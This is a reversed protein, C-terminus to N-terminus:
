PMVPQITKIAYISDVFSRERGLQLPKLPTVSVGSLTGRYLEDGRTFYSLGTVDHIVYPEGGAHGIYMMVHGPIYILDGVTLNDLAQLRKRDDGPEFFQTPAFAGKGQQGSNRPMLIGFSKYVEGVFGTCDRGNYDHGWGYREGLFKFAQELVLSPRYELHGVNVDRSRAVLTPEFELRGDEGRVPLSVIHSAVPNQGNVNHGVEAASLLPLSVGMDLAKESTRTDVPNFNTSVQAGTVVLRPAMGLWQEVQGRKGVAVASKPLWAAYHYNVAFWWEGDASEHLLVVQQGPFVGTEQLRDLDQDDPAKFIRDGTPFSRMSAREVVVGWQLEVVDPVQERQVAAQMRGYDAESVQRGDRYYRPSSAPRSIGDLLDRVQEGPMTEGLAQLDHLYEGRAFNRANFSHVQESGMRLPDGDLRQVWYDASLMQESIGPVDSVFVPSAGGAGPGARDGAHATGTM